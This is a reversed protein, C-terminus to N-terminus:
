GNAKLQRILNDYYVRGNAYKPDNPLSSSCKLKLIAAEARGIMAPAFILGAAAATSTKLLKRRSFPAINMAADGGKNRISRSQRRARKHSSQLTLPLGCALRM